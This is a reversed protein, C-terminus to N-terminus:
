PMQDITYAEAGLAGLVLDDFVWQGDELVYNVTTVDTGEQYSWTGYITVQYQTDSVKKSDVYIKSYSDGGLGIAGTLYLKGDQEVFAQKVYVEELVGITSYTYYQHSQQRLAEMTTIGPVNVAYFSRTLGYAKIQGTIVDNKDVYVPDLYWDYVYKTAKPLLDAFYASDFEEETPEEAPEEAQTILRVCVTAAEARTANDKPSFKQSDDGVMIGTKRMLEVADVAYASIDSSDTFANVAADSEQLSLGYADVYRYILTAMQERTIEQNPSFTGDGTGDSIGQEAAWNVYPTYWQGEPVDSFSSATNYAAEDV